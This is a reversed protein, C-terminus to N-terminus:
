DGLFANVLGCQHLATWNCTTDFLMKACCIDGFGCSFADNLHSVTASFPLIYTWVKKQLCGQFIETSFFWTHVYQTLVTHSTIEITWIQWCCFNISDNWRLLFLFGIWNLCSQVKITQFTPWASFYIVENESDITTSHTILHKINFLYKQLMTVMVLQFIRQFVIKFIKEIQM